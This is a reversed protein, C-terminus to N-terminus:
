HNQYGIYKMVQELESFKVWIYPGQFVQVEKYMSNWGVKAIYENKITIFDTNYSDHWM